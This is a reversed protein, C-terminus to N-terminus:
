YSIPSQFISTLGEVASKIQDRFEDIPTPTDAAKASGSSHVATIEVEPSPRRAPQVAWLYITIKAGPPMEAVSVRLKGESLNTTEDISYYQDSIVQYRTIRGNPVFINILTEYAAKNGLNKIVAMRQIWWETGLRADQAFVQARLEPRTLFPIQDYIVRVWSFQSALIVFIFGILLLQLFLSAIRISPLRLNM